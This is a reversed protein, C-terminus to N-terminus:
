FCDNFPKLPKIDVVKFDPCVWLLGASSSEVYFNIEISEVEKMLNSPVTIDRIASMKYVLVRHSSSHKDYNLEEIFNMFLFIPMYGNQLLFFNQETVLHRIKM